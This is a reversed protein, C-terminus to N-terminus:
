LQEVSRHRHRKPATALLLCDIAILIDAFAQRAEGSHRGRKAARILARAKFLRDRSTM